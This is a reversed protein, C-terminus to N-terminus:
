SIDNIRIMTAMPFNPEIFDTFVDIQKQGATESIIMKSKFNGAQIHCGDDMWMEIANQAIIEDTEESTQEFTFDKLKKTFELISFFINRVTKLCRIAEQSTQCGQLAMKSTEVLSVAAFVLIKLSGGIVKDWIKELASSNLVGAFGRSFWTKLPIDETLGIKSLHSYLLTTNPDKSLIEHFARIADSFAEDSFKRIQDTLGKCLYFVEVDQNQRDHSEYVKFMDEAIASFNAPWFETLQAQYDFKLEGNFLLWLITLKTAKPMSEQIRGASKMFRLNDEYPQVKWKWNSEKNKAFRPAVGLLVKWVQLRDCSPMSHKLAFSSFKDINLPDDSWLVELTKREEVGRFGVKEYYHSRFNRDDKAGLSPVRKAETMVECSSFFLYMFTIIYFANKSM